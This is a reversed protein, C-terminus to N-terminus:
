RNLSKCLGINRGNSRYLLGKSIYDRERSKDVYEEESDDIVICEDTKYAYTLINDLVNDTPNYLSVICCIKKTASQSM